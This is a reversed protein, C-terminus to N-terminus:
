GQKAKGLIRYGVALLILGLTLFIPIPWQVMGTQPLKPDPVVPSDAEDPVPSPDPIWSFKPSVIAHDQWKGSELDTSPLYVLAPIMELKQPEEKDWKKLLYVGADLEKFHIKGDKEPKQIAVPALNAGTHSTEEPYQIKACLADVLIHVKESTLNDFVLNEFLKIPKMHLNGTTDIEADAVKYLYIQTDYINSSEPMQMDVDISYKNEPPAAFAVTSLLCFVVLISLVGILVRRKKGNMM